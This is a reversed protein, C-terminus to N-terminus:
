REKKLYFLVNNYSQQKLFAFKQYLPTVFNLGAIVLAELLGSGTPLHLGWPFLQVSQGLWHSNVPSLPFSPTWSTTWPQCKPLPCITCFCVNSHQPALFYQKQSTATVPIERELKGLLSKDTWWSIGMPFLMLYDLQRPYYIYCNRM